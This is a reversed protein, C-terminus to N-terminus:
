SDLALNALKDAVQNKERPVHQVHKEPFRGLLGLAQQHLTKLKPSKVKYAGSLQRVLLQSDSCVVLRRPHHKAAMKLGEIVARYEAVNNTTRGIERSLTDVVTRDQAYLVAGISARGPNGRSAGDAYLWLTSSM